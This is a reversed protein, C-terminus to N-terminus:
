FPVTNDEWDIEDVVDPAAVVEAIERGHMYDWALKAGGALLRKIYAANRASRAKGEESDAEVGDSYFDYDNPTLGPPDPKLNMARIKEKDSDILPPPFACFVYRKALQDPETADRVNHLWDLFIRVKSPKWGRCFKEFYDRYEPKICILDQNTM